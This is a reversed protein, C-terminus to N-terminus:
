RRRLDLFLDEPEGSEVLELDARVLQTRISQAPDFPRDFRRTALAYSPSAWFGDSATPSGESGPQITGAPVSGDPDPGGFPGVSAGLGNAHELTGAPPTSPLLPLGCTRCFRDSADIPIGCRVCQNRVAM